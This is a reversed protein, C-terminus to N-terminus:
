EYKVGWHIVAPYIGLGIIVGIAVGFIMFLLYWLWNTSTDKLWESIVHSKLLKYLEDEDSIIENLIDSLNENENEKNM